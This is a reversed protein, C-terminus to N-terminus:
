DRPAWTTRAAALLDDTEAHHLAHRAAPGDDATDVQATTHVPTGATAEARFQLALGTCRHADLLADPLTGLAWELYRVSNVHRNLDLDHYRATWTTEHDTRDPTPLDDFAQRLPRPRDPMDLDYLLRPPRVPRRRETDIVFWRSTARGMETDDVSLVFERTAHLGDLGSPWTEVAVTENEQPLRDLHLYMHSLVWAQEKERLDRMSVGLADAHHGAAEQLYVCLAPMSATGHPTLDSSRVPVTETWTIPSPM